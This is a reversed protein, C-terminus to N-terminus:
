VGEDQKIITNSWDMPRFSNFTHKIIRKTVRKHIPPVNDYEVSLGIVFIAPFRKVTLEKVDFGHRILQRAHIYADSDIPMPIAMKNGDYEFFLETIKYSIIREGLNEFLLEIREVTWVVSKHFNNGIVSLVIDAYNFPRDESIRSLTENVKNLQISQAEFIWYPALILRTVVIAVLVYIAVKWSTLEASEIIKRGPPYLYIVLGGSILLIFIVAQAIDISPRCVEKFYKMYFRFFGM